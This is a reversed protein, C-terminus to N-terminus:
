AAARPRTEQAIMAREAIAQPNLVLVGCTAERVVRAAVSGLLLHSIGGRGHTAMVILEAGQAAAKLIQEDPAGMRAEIRVRLGERLYKPVATIFQYWIEDQRRVVIEDAYWGLTERIDRVEQPTVVYLVHLEYKLQRALRAGQIIAGASLDSLDTPVLIRGEGAPM